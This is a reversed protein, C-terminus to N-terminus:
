LEQMNEWMKEKRLYNEVLAPFGEDVQSEVYSDIERDIEARSMKETGFFLGVVYDRAGYDGASLYLTLQYFGCTRDREEARTCEASIEVQMNCDISEAPILYKRTYIEEDVPVLPLFANM